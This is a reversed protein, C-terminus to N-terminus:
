ACTVGAPRDARLWFAFCVLLFQKREGVVLARSLIQFLDLGLTEVQVDSARAAKCTLRAERNHNPNM